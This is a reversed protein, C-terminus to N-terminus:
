KKKRITRDERMQSLNGEWVGSGIFESISEAKLRRVTESLARSVAESYTKAQLMRTATELLDEDLM